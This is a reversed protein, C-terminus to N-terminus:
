AEKGNKDIHKGRAFLTGDFFIRQFDPQEAAEVFEVSRAIAVAERRLERDMLAAMAGESAANGVSDIAVDGCDPFLGIYRANEKDIYSGFAGALVIRRPLEGGNKNILLQAGAYIAGKALQVARIDKQTIVLDGSLSTEQQYALVYEMSRRGRARLRPTDIMKNFSGDYLVLGTRVLEAVVDIIGSGCIGQPKIGGIVRFEPEYTVPNIRVKEIAGAAARMGFTIEAGELAPGTACSTSLLGQRSGLDIEGNTGIDIVLTLEDQRDPRESLLVAVNDAGVFGAEIPLCHINGAEAMDIELVGPKLDVASRLVSVFPAKGIAEPDLGLFIHEMVTNGAVVMEYLYSREIGASQVLRGVLGNIDQRVAQTLQQLGDEHLMGYSIRSVVDDGYRIQSNMASARALLRGDALNVLTAALTTTGLDVAVGYMGSNGSPRVDIVECGGRVVVQVQWGQQRLVRPLKKWVPYSVYLEASLKEDAEHLADRLREDDSRFDALDPRSLSLEYCAVDPLLRHATSRGEELIVGKGARSADPVYIVANEKLYLMCALRYHSMIEFKSLVKREVQTLPNMIQRINRKRDGSEVRVRCKGCTGNGGCIAAVDVGNRRAAEMVSEGKNLIIRRGTPQFVVKIAMGMEGAKLIFLSMVAQRGASADCAEDSM